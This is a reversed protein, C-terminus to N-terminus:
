GNCIAGSSLWIDAFYNKRNEHRLCLFPMVWGQPVVSSAPLENSVVPGLKLRMLGDALFQTKSTILMSNVAVYEIHPDVM